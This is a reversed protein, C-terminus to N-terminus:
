LYKKMEETVYHSTVKVGCPLLVNDRVYDAFRVGSVVEVVAALVDHCMSYLYSTGPEFALPAMAYDKIIDLTSADSKREALRTCPATDYTLGATMTLLDHITIQKRAFTFGRETKVRMNRYEPIIDALETDLSIKEQEVLQMIATMTQVKTMSFMLYLEDGCVPKKGEADTHGNMHRYIQEHEKYIICDVSPIGRSALSDLFETIAEFNM